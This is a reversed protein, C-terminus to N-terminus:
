MASNQSHGGRSRGRPGRGAAAETGRVGSVLGWLLPFGGEEAAGREQPPCIAPYRPGQGEAAGPPHFPHEGTGKGEWGRTRLFPHHPGRGERAGAHQKAGRM